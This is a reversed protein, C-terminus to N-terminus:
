AAEGADVDGAVGLDEACLELFPCSRCKGRNQTMYYTARRAREVVVDRESADLGALQAAALAQSARDDARERLEAMQMAGTRIRAEAADIDEPTIQFEHETGDGLLILRGRCAEELSLVRAGHRLFVSYTQVQSIAERLRRGDRVRGLKHDIVEWPGDPEVRMVLDPAAWVLVPEEKGNGPLVYSSLSDVVLIEDPACAGVEAWLGLGDLTVLGREMRERVALGQERTPGRGYYADLLMPVRKPDRLWDAHRDRSSLWVYRMHTTSRQRMTALSPMEDGDRLARAREAAREHLVRGAEM